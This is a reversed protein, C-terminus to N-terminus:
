GASPRFLLSAAGHAPLQVSVRGVGGAQLESRPREDAYRLSASADPGYPSRVAIAGAQGALHQLRM